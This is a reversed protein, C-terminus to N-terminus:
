RNGTSFGYKNHVHCYKSKSVAKNQCRQGKKTFGECQSFDNKEELLKEGLLTHLSPQPLTHTDYRNKAYDLLSFHWKYKELLKKKIGWDVFDSVAKELLSGVLPVPILSLPTTFYSSIKQFREIKKQAHDIEHLIQSLTIEDAGEDNHQKADLYERLGKAKDRIHMLEAISSINELPLYFSLITGAQSTTPITSTSGMVSWMIKASYFPEYDFWDFLGISYERSLLLSNNISLLYDRIIEPWIHSDGAKFPYASHTLSNRAETYLATRTQPFSTGNERFIDYMRFIYEQWSTSSKKLINNWSSANALDHDTMKELLYLHNNTDSAYDRLEVIGKRVLESVTESNLVSTSFIKEKLGSKQETWTKNIIIKDYLIFPTVDIVLNHPSRSFPPADYFFNNQLSLDKGKSKWYMDQAVGFSALMIDM